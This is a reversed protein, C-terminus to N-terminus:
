FTYKGLDGGKAKSPGVSNEHAITAFAKDGDVIQKRLSEARAKAEEKSRTISPDTRLAM